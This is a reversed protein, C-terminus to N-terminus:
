FGDRRHVAKCAPGTRQAPGRNATSESPLLHARGGQRRRARLTEPSRNSQESATLPAPLASTPFGPVIAILAVWGHANSLCVCRQRRQPPCTLTLRGSKSQAGVVAHRARSTQADARAGRRRRAAAGRRSQSDRVRARRGEPSTRPHMLLYRQLVLGMTIRATCVRPHHPPCLSSSPKGGGPLAGRSRSRM